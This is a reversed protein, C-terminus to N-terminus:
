QGLVGNVVMDTIDQGGALVAKANLIILGHEAAIRALTTDMDEAFDTIAAQMDDDSLDGDMSKVFALVSDQGDVMVIRPAPDIHEPM